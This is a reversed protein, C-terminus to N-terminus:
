QFRFWREVKKMAGIAFAGYRQAMAVVGCAVGASPDLAALGPLSGRV